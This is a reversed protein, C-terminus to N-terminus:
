PELFWNNNEPGYAYTQPFKKDILIDSEDHIECSIEIKIRKGQKVANKIEDPFGLGPAQIGAYADLKWPKTGGYYDSSSDKSFGDTIFKIKIYALYKRPDQNAIWFWVKFEELFNFAVSNPLVSSIKYFVLAINEKTEKPKVTQPTTDKLLELEITQRKILLEKLDAEKQLIDDTIKQNKYWKIGAWIMILAGAMFGVWLAQNGYVFIGVGSTVLFITGCSMLFKYFDDYVLKPLEM